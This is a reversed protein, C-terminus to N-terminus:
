HKAQLEQQIIPHQALQKYYEAMKPYTSSVVEKPVHDLVGNQLMDLKVFLSLDAISIQKGLLFPGGSQELRTLLYGMYKPLVNAVFALRDEKISSTAAKATMEEISDMLEDCRLMALDDGKPYLDSKRAAWRQLAVSQAYVVGNAEPLSLVPLSGLPTKAPNPKLESMFTAGPVREDVFDFKAYRLAARIAFGRGNVPFYTLTPKSM